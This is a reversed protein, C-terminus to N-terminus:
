SKRQQNGDTEQGTMPRAGKAGRGTTPRAGRTQGSRCEAAPFLKDRTLEVRYCTVRIPAINLATQIFEGLYLDVLNDKQRRFIFVNKM